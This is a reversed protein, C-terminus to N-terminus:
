LTTWNVLKRFFSCVLFCDRARFILLACFQNNIDHQSFFSDDFICELPIRVVRMTLVSLFHNCFL